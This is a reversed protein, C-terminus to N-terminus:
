QTQGGATQVSSGDVLMSKGSTAIKEGENLGSIVEFIEGQEIGLKIVRKKAFNNDIIFVFREEGSRLIGAKPIIVVNHKVDLVLEVRAFMGARLLMDGNPVIIEVNFTRSLPDATPNIKSVEGRFIRGPYADVKIEALLGKKLHTFRNEPVKINIKVKSLDMITVVGAGGPMMPNITENEEMSKATIIGDFPAKMISVDYRYQALNLAAQANELQSKAADYGLKAKEYQQPSVAKQEYLSQTREWTKSADNLSAKAVSLGAKAQELQLRYAETDLEALVQGKKVRDGEEVYIKQVKGAVDPSVNLMDFPEINGTFFLKETIEGRIIKHTEVPVARSNNNQTSDDKSCNICFLIIVSASTILINLVRSKM